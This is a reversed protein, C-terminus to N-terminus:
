NERAFAFHQSRSYQLFHAAFASFFQFFTRAHDVESFCFVESYACNLSLDGTM